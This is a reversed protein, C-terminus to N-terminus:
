DLFVSIAWLAGLLPLLAAMVIFVLRRRTQLNGVYSVFCAVILNIALASIEIWQFSLAEGGTIVDWYGVVVATAVGYVAGVIAGTSTSFPVFLALFFLAFLPTVLLNSTKKAVELFNGPVYEILFSCCVVIGGILLALLQATRVRNEQRNSRSGFRDLFDTTVVATISNVGSDLSSMAAAFMAAMVLGSLGVPLHSSIFYPFLNDAEVSLDGSGPILHKYVQFYGLLAFGVVALLGIVVVSAISQVLYSRRASAADRTAMYRQIATQDGGATSIKWITSAIISGVITVRVRPDLSFVPQDDWNPAWTTPWWESVGGTRVNM